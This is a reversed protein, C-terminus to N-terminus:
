QPIVLVQGIKLPKSGLADKNAEQIKEVGNKTDGPYMKHAIKWISDGKVVTYSRSPGADAAPTGAAPHELAPNPADLPLARLPGAPAANTTTSADATAPVAALPADVDAPAIPEAAPVPANHHHKAAEALQTQLRTITTSADAAQKKLAENESRLKSIEDANQSSSNPQSTAFVKGEKEIAEKANVAHEGNPSLVLYQRYHYISLVPDQLKEAYLIGLQYQAGPLNPNAALAAEYDVVAADPKNNDLDEQAQKYYTNSSNDAQVEQKTAQNCGVLGISAGIILCISRLMRM